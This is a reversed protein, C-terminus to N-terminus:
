AHLLMSTVYRLPQYSFPTAPLVNDQQLLAIKKAQNGMVVRDSMLVMIGAMPRTAMVRMQQAQLAPAAVAARVETLLPWLGLGRRSIHWPFTILHAPQRTLRHLPPGPRLCRLLLSSVEDVEQQRAMRLAKLYVPYSALVILLYFVSFFVTFFVVLDLKLRPQTYFFRYELNDGTTPVGARGLIHIYFRTSEFNFREYEITVSQRGGFGGTRAQILRQPPLRSTNVGSADGFLGGENDPASATVYFSIAEDVNAEVFVRMDLNTYRPEAQYAHIQM